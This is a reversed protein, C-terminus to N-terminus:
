CLERINNTLTLMYVHSRAKDIDYVNPINSRGKVDRNSLTVIKWDGPLSCTLDHGQHSSPDLRGFICCGSCRLHAVDTDM